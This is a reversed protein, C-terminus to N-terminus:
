SLPGLLTAAAPVLVLVVVVVAPLLLLTLHSMVAYYRGVIWPFVPYQTIDNYSRGALTNLQM